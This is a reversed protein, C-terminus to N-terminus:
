RVDSQKTKTLRVNSKIEFSDVDYFEIKNSIGLSNCQLVFFALKEIVMFQIM